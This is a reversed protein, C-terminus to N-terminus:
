LRINKDRFGIKERMLITRKMNERCHCHHVIATANILFSFSLFWLYNFKDCVICLFRLLDDDESAKIAMWKETTQILKLKTASCPLVTRSVVKVFFHKCRFKIRIKKRMEWKAQKDYEVNWEYM